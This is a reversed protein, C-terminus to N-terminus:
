ELWGSNLMVIWEASAPDFMGVTRPYMVVVADFVYGVQWLGDPLATVWAASLPDEVDASDLPAGADLDYGRATPPLANVTPTCDPGLEEAPRWTSPYTIEGTGSWVISGGFVSLGNRANVVAAGGFDGPAEYFVYADEPNPPSLMSGASGYGTDTQATQRAKTENVQAYSGCIIQFGLIDLSEYDLRVVTSCTKVGSTEGAIAESLAQCAAGGSGGAGASGASGASGAAGGSGAAGASGAAAGSGAAGAVGASGAAGGGGSTGGSGATGGTGSTGGSGAAGGTGSTGSPEPSSSGEGGCAMLLASVAVLYKSWAM